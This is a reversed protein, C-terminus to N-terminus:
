SEDLKAQNHRDTKFIRWPHLLLVWKRPTTHHRPFEREVPAMDWPKRERERTLVDADANEPHMLGQVVLLMGIAGYVAYDRYERRIGYFGTAIAMDRLKVSGWLPARFASKALGSVDLWHDFHRVIGPFDLSMYEFVKQVSCGVLVLKRDPLERCFEEIVGNLKAEVEVLRSSGPEPEDFITHQRRRRLYYHCRQYGSFSSIPAEHRAAFEGTHEEEATGAQPDLEPLFALDIEISEYPGNHKSQIDLAVFSVNEPLKGLSKLSPIYRLVLASLGPTLPIGTLDLKPERSDWVLHDNDDPFM